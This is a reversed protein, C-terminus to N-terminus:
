RRRRGAVAHEVLQAYLARVRETRKRWSFDEAIRRLKEPAIRDRRTLTHEIGDAIADAAAAPTVYGHGQLGLLEPIAGVPTGLVPTGSAFAELIVLGFGEIAVTPLVFVDAGQYQRSLDEDRIYGLFLCDKGLPVALKKLDEMLPGTGGIRLQVRRGKKKLLLAAGILQDIGMRKVLNRVTLLVPPDQDGRASKVPFADLDVGGPVITIPAQPAIEVVRRRSFESLVVITNAHQLVAREIGGALPAILRRSGGKVKLEDAWSSHFTYVAPVSSLARHGLAHYALHPQHLDLVEPTFNKLASELGSQLGRRTSNLFAFPNEMAVPYRFIKFGSREEFADPASRTQRSIVRVEDGAEALTRALEAAVRGAGGVTDPHFVEALMLIRM